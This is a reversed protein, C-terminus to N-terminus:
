LTIVHFYFYYASIYIVQTSPLRAQDTYEIAHFNNIYNPGCMYLGLYVPVRSPQFNPEATALTYRLIRFTRRSPLLNDWECMIM